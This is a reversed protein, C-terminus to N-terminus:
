NKLFKLSYIVRYKLVILYSTIKINEYYCYMFCYTITRWDFAALNKLKNCSWVRLIRLQCFAGAM